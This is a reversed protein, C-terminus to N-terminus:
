RHLSIYMNLAVVFLYSPCSLAMWLAINGSNEALTFYGGRLPLDCKETNDLQDMCVDSFNVYINIGFAAAALLRMFSIILEGPLKSVEKEQDFPVLFFQVSRAEHLRCPVEFLILLFLPIQM